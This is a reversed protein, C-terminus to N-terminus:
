LEQKTEKVYSCIIEIMIRPILARFPKQEVIFIMWKVFARIGLKNRM